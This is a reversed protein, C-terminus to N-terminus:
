TFHSAALAHDMKIKKKLKDLNAYSVGFMENTVGHRAYLKRNQETGLSKLERLTEQLTM